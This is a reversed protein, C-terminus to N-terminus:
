SKGGVKHKIESIVIRRLKLRSGLGLTHLWDATGQNHTHALVTQLGDVKESSQKRIGVSLPNRDFVVYLEFSYHEWQTFVQHSAHPQLEARSFVGCLDLTM